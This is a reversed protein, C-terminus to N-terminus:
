EVLPAPLPPRLLLRPSRRHRRRCQSPRAVLAHHVGAVTFTALPLTDVDRAPGLLTVGDIAALGDRLERALDDDHAVIADWGIRQLEGIAADLAVAGVVNPSGAEEREPPDTWLVEDLDVLDVSDINGNPADSM